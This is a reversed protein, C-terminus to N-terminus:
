SYDDMCQLIYCVNGKQNKQEKEAEQEYAHLKKRVLQRGIHFSIELFVIM